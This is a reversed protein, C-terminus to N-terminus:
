PINCHFAFQWNDTRLWEHYKCSLFAFDLNIFFTKILVCSYSTEIFKMILLIISKKARTIVTADLFINKSGRSLHLGVQYFFCLFDYFHLPTTNRWMTHYRTYSLIILCHLCALASKRMSTLILLGQARISCLSYQKFAMPM